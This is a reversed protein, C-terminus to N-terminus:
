YLMQEGMQEGGRYTWNINALWDASCGSWAYMPSQRGAWLSHAWNSSMSLCPSLGPHNPPSVVKQGTTSLADRSCAMCYMLPYPGSFLTFWLSQSSICQLLVTYCDTHVRRKDKVWGPQLIGLSVVASTPSPNSQSDVLTGQLAVDINDALVRPEEGVIIFCVGKHPTM